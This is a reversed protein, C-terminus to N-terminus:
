GRPVGLWRASWVVEGRLRYRTVPGCRTGGPGTLGVVEVEHDHEVLLPQVAAWATAAESATPALVDSPRGSQESTVHWWLSRPEQPAITSNGPWYYDDDAM